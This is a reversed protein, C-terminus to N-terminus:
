KGRKKSKSGKKEGILAVGFAATAHPHKPVKVKMGVENELAEIVGTYRAVGGSMVIGSKKGTSRIMAGVRKAVMKYLGAVIEEKPKGKAILSIVESEAFITCTTHIAAVNTLDVEMNSMDSHEVGMAYVMTDLFCGTGTSCKDNTLFNSMIGMEDLEVVRVGQGGIDVVLQCNSDVYRAGRALASFETKTGTSIGIRDKGAGTTIIPYSNDSPLNRKKLMTKIIDKVLKEPDTSTPENRFAVIKGNEAMAVKTYMTGIDVGFATM